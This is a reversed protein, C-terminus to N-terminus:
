LFKNGVYGLPRHTLMRFASQRYWVYFVFVPSRRSTPHPALITWSFAAPFNGGLYAGLFIPLANLNKKLRALSAFLLKRSRLPYGWRCPVYPLTAWFTPVFNSEKGPLSPYHTSASEPFRYFGAEIWKSHDPFPRSHKRFFYFSLARVRITHLRIQFAM